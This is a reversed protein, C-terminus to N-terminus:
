SSIDLWYTFGDGWLLTVLGASTLFPGFAFPQHRELPRNLWIIGTVFLALLSAITFIQLLAKWGFWAGLLSALKFDGFGMSEKKQFLKYLWYLLWLSLYGVAAGIVATPLSTFWHGLNCLLGVWLLPLVIIDPLLQTDADIVALTILAYALIMAGIAQWTPGFRSGILTGLIISTILIITRRTRNDSTTSHFCNLISEKGCVSSYCRIDTNNTSHQMTLFEIQWTREIIVPLYKITM